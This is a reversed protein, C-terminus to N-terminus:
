REKSFLFPYAKSMVIADTHGGAELNSRNSWNKRFKARIIGNCSAHKNNISKFNSRECKPLLTSQPHQLLPASSSIQLLSLLFPPFCTFIYCLPSSLSTVEHGASPLSNRKPPKTPSGLNPLRMRRHPHTVSDFICSIPYDIISQIWRARPHSM